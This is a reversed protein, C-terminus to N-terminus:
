TYFSQCACAQCTEVEVVQREELGGRAPALEEGGDPSHDQPCRIDPGGARPEVFIEEKAHGWHKSLNYWTEELVGPRNRGEDSIENKMAQIEESGIEQEWQGPNSDM